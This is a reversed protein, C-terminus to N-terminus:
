QVNSSHQSSIKGGGIQSTMWHWVAWTWWGMPAPMGAAFKQFRQKNGERFRSICFSIMFEPCLNQRQDGVRRHDRSNTSTKAQCQMRTSGYRKLNVHSTDISEVYSYREGRCPTWWTNGCVESVFKWTTRSWAMSSLFEGAPAWWIATNVSGVFVPADWRCIERRLKWLDLADFHSHEKGVQHHGGCVAGDAVGCFHCRGVAAGLINQHTCNAFEIRQLHASTRGRQTDSVEWEVSCTFWLIAYTCWVVLCFSFTDFHMSICFRKHFPSPMAIEEYAGTVGCVKCKGWPLQLQLPLRIIQHWSPNKDLSLKCSFLTLVLSYSCSSSSKRIMEQMHPLMQLTRVTQMSHQCDWVGRFRPCFNRHQGHEQVSHFFCM